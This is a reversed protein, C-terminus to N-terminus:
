FRTVFRWKPGNVIAFGCLSLENRLPAGFAAAARRERCPYASRKKAAKRVEKTKKSM